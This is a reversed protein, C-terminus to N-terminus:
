ERATDQGAMRGAVGGEVIRRKTRGQFVWLGGSLSRPCLRDCRDARGGIMGVDEADFFDFSTARMTQSCSMVGRVTEYTGDRAGFGWYSKRQVRAGHGGVSGDVVGVIHRMLVKTKSVSRLRAKM